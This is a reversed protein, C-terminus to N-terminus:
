TGHEHVLEWLVQTYQDTTFYLIMVPIKVSRNSYNSSASTSALSSCGVVTANATTVQM